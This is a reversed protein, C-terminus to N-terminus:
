NANYLARPCSAVGKGGRSVAAFTAAVFAVMQDASLPALTESIDNVDACEGPKLEIGLTEVFGTDITARLEDDSMDLMAAGDEPNKGSGIKIFGARALPWVADANGRLEAVRTDLGTLLYSGAPLHPRCTEVVGDIVQPLFYAVLGNMEAPTLCPKTAAQASPGALAAAGAAVSLVIRKM